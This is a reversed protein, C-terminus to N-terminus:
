SKAFVLTQFGASFAFRRLGKKPHLHQDWMTRVASETFLLFVGFWFGGARREHEGCYDLVANVVDSGSRANNVRDGFCPDIAIFPWVVRLLDASQKQVVNRRYEVLADDTRFCRQFLALALTFRSSEYM